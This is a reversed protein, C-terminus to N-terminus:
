SPGSDALRGTGHETLRATEYWSSGVEGLAFFVVGLITTLSALAIVPALPAGPFLGSLFGFHYDLLLGHCPVAAVFVCLAEVLAIRARRYFPPHLPKSSLVLRGTAPARMVWGVGQRRYGGERSEPDLDRELHGSAVVQEGQELEAIRLRSTPGTQRTATLDDMLLTDRGPEVRVREGSPLRLYFARASVERSRETWSCAWGNEVRSESGEQEIEVRFASDSGAAFEVTGRVAAQGAELASNECTFAREAQRGRKKQHAHVVLATAVLGLALVGGTGYVLLMSSIPELKGTSLPPSTSPGLMALWHDRCVIASIWMAPWLMAANWFALAMPRRARRLDPDPIRLERVGLGMALLQGVLPGFLMMLLGTWRKYSWRTTDDRGSRTPLSTIIAISALWVLSSVLWVAVAHPAIAAPLTGGAGAWSLSIVILAAALQVLALLWASVAPPATLDDYRGEGRGVTAGQELESIATGQGDSPDDGENM